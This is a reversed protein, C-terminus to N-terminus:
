SGRASQECAPIGAARAAEEADASEVLERALRRAEAEDGAEAAAELDGLLEVVDAGRALYREFGDELEEPPELERLNSVSEDTIARAQRAYAGLEEVTDPQELEVLREEARTCIATAQAVFEERSLREDGGGACGALAAAVAILPPLARM